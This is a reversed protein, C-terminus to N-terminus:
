IGNKRCERKWKYFQITESMDDSFGKTKEDMTDFLKRIKSILLGFALGLILGALFM